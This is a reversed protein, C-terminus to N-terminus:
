PRMQEKAIAIRSDNWMMTKVDGTTQMEYHVMAEKEYPHFRQRTLM